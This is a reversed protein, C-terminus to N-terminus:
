LLPEIYPLANHFQHNLPILWRKEFPSPDNFPAPILTHLFINPHSYEHLNYMFLDYTRSYTPTKDGQTRFLIIRTHHSLRTRATNPSHLYAVRIFPTRTTLEAAATAGDSFGYITTPHKARNLTQSLHFIRWWNWNVLTKPFEVSTPFFKQMEQYGFGHLAIHRM